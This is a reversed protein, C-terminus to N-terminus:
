DVFEKIKKIFFETKTMELKILKISFEKFLKSDLYFTIQREDRDDKNIKDLKKM